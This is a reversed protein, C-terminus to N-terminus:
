LGKAVTACHVAAQMWDEMTAVDLQKEQGWPVAAKASSANQAACQPVSQEAQSSKPVMAHPNSQPEAPTL